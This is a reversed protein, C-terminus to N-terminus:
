NTRREVNGGSCHGDISRSSSRLLYTICRVYYYYYRRQWRLIIESHMHTFREETNGLGKCLMMLLSISFLCYKHVHCVRYHYLDYINSYTISPGDWVINNNSNMNFLISNMTTIQLVDQGWNSCIYYYSCIYMINKKVIDM